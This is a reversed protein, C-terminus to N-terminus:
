RETVYRSLRIGKSIETNYSADMKKGNQLRTEKLIESASYKNRIIIEAYRIGFLHIMTTKEGRDASEYMESLARALENVTM